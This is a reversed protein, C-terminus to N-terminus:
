TYHSIIEKVELISPLPIMSECEWFFRKGTSEFSFVSPYFQPPNPHKGPLVGYNHRPMMLPTQNTSLPAIVPASAYGGSMYPINTYQKYAITTM